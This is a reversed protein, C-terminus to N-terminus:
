VAELYSDFLDVVVTWSGEESPGFLDDSAFAVAYVPESPGQYPGIDPFADNGRVAEVVGEAGRVYRPCRTHGEPRMRKVHVRDGAGFRAGEAPALTATEREAAVAREALSPDERRPVEDGRRLREVWAEVEGPAIAGKHELRRENSWLWREYYSSRLYESPEMQERLPRGGGKGLGQTGIIESMAFVRAEWPEHYAREAGPEVVV